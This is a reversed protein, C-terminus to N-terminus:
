THRAIKRYEGRFYLLPEGENMLADQVAGIFITHDGSVHAAVVRCTMQLLVNELVFIGGSTQRYRIALREEAEASQEGKAFYESIAEQGAKLVSVGFHKKKELLHLM